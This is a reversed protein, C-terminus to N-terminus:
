FKLQVNFGYSRIAPYGALELGQGNNSSNLTSEPDINPTHKVLTILNRAVLSFSVGKVFSQGLVASPLSYSLSASRLKIFSADYVFRSSIHHSGTAMDQWYTQADINTTNPKNDETVGKGVFGNERGELTGKQLGYQYLAVNTGSYIDAGFKYDFLASLNFNKYQFGTSLGGTTKYVATGLSKVESQEPYGDDDFIIEGADNRKFDYGMIQAYPMGVVNSINVESGWRPQAGDIVLKDQGGLDLVKSNNHAYNFSLNWTFDPTQIPIFNLLLEIGSNKVQGANIINGGYGSTQSITVPVIDDTTKKNYYTFDFGIRGNFFDMKLGIEEESISVPKLNKNPITSNNVYGLSQGNITYGQLGYTLLNQYPDTGNSADAYSARLKGFSIWSPLDLVDSFIFSLAASPYLYSNSNISLTSFWDNRATLTLFLYDKFGIDASGYISNVRYHSYDYNFPKSPVNNTSYFYPIAFPGVADVGYAKNIDDQTNAGVFADLTFNNNLEKNVGIMFNANLEQFNVEQKTIQGGLDNPGETFQVGSPTIFTKDFIYGDRTVQGQVYLWDLLNYKITLGGTLRNRKTHNQYEQTIFYPNEFYIDTGPLYEDGNPKRVSDKMWRIDFSNALYNTSAIVNRPADGFSPRNKVNQVVYDATLTMELNHTVHFTGNFNVGQQKMNSNPITSKLYTNSLGLRFHGKDNGGALALSTENNMGTQYFNKYNDKAPLYSYTRGRFDVADSGDLKAGWSDYPANLAAAKTTPKKGLLGQGYEYQYDREDIVQRFTLNNNLTVGIGNAHKGSKTTILIAGNGGRYGYLASAAVSKLVQISEINDPDINALGNGYDAGGWKTADGQNSNNYPIGDIVYLPQNNGSISANGRIVVRSGGAPGTATGSVNVGAIKGTLANGINTTRAKTFEDGPVETTSYGLSRKSKEVGLATVVMENLTHKNSILQVNIEKKSGVTVKKSQYGLSSFILVDNSTASITFAGSEDAVTGSQTGEIQISAAPIPIGGTSTVKGTIQKQQGTSFIPYLLVGMAFFLYTLVRRM